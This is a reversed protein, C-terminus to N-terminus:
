EHFDTRTVEHAGLGLSHCCGEVLLVHKVLVEVVTGTEESSDLL